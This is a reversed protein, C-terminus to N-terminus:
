LKRSTFRKTVRVQGYQCLETDDWGMKKLDKAAFSLLDWPNIGDASLRRAIDKTAGKHFSWSEAHIFDWREYSTEVAGNAEVFGKLNGKCAKLVAELREIEGALQVAEEHTRPVANSITTM